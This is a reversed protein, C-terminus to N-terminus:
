RAAARQSAAHYSSRVLPGSEVHALGCERGFRALAAFEQPAYFREVRHHRLSPQLYQGITLIDVGAAHVDRMLEHLEEISEGLGVMIGTKVTPRPAFRDARALVDLSRRYDSRPRVGRYLRPVTELNHALVQPRSALVAELAGSKGSFDPILLEIECHPARERLAAVSAVFIAAGGDPLDDRDVSTIVAHALGLQAIGEALRRPEDRDVEGTWGYGVNCFTCRRTCREGLIMFSATSAEWCEAMNPCRGEACITHLGHEAVLRRLAFYNEGTRPAVRLWNPKGRRPDGMVHRNAGDTKM